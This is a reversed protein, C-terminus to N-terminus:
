FLRNEQDYNTILYETKRSKINRREKIKTVNFGRRKAESLVFPHNFESMACKIGCNDMIQFCDYTDDKTWKPVNYSHVTDLYIPDLYVFAEDKTILKESFSLKPIVNRFDECMIRVDSLRPYVWDINKLLNSKENGISFRLTDKKGLYTFNSLVLFRLAKQLPDDTTNKNYYAILSQSIPVELVEKILEDKREKVVIFLNTIDDDLDNLTNFKAKPTNFFEGGAGFFM